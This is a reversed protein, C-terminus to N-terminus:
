PAGGEHSALKRPGRMAPDLVKTTGSRRFLLSGLWEVLLAYEKSMEGNVLKLGETAEVSELRGNVKEINTAGHHCYGM